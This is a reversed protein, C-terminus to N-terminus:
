PPCVNACAAKVLLVQNKLVIFLGCFKCRTTLAELCTDRAGVYTLEGTVRGEEKDERRLM